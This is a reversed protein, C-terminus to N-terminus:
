FYQKSCSKLLFGLKCSTFWRLDVEVLSMFESQPASSYSSCRNARYQGIAFVLPIEFNDILSRYWGVEGRRYNNDQRLWRRPRRRPHLRYWKQEDTGAIFTCRNSTVRWWLCVSVRVWRWCRILHSPQSCPLSACGNVMSTQACLVQLSYHYFSYRPWIVMPWIAALSPRAANQALLVTILLLRKQTLRRSPLIFVNHSQILDDTGPRVSANGSSNAQAKASASSRDARLTDQLLLLSHGAGAGAERVCGRALHAGSSWGTQRM